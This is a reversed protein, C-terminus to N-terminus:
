IIQKFVKKLHGALRNVAFSGCSLDMVALRLDSWGRFTFNYSKHKKIKKCSKLVEGCTKEALVILTVDSTKHGEIPKVKSIGDNWALEALEALRGASLEDELAFYVYEHTYIDSLHAIKLLMYQETHSHFEATAVFPSVPNETNLDYYRKFSDLLKELVTKSDM